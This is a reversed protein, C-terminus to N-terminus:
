VHARGIQREVLRPGGPGAAVEATSPQGMGFWNVPRRSYAQTVHLDEAPLTSTFGQSRAWDILESANLLPRYVYLPRPDDAAFSVTKGAQKLPQAVGKDGADNAPTALPADPKPMSGTPANPDDKRVYGEGYTDRFSDVTRVWGLKELKSDTEATKAIDEEEEVVRRVIPAAVDPGFNFDTWWRAVSSTFSDTLEDADAKVVEMKVDAHVEGQARSSGNDTTMTQSLCVKAIAADMYACLEKFDATGSRVAGILEVAMGEPVVFGSDTAIAQLAMLLKNIDEVSSGRPYTGKATPTGFKDLFINWFSLGNRKFLTPWYLWHALGRGYPEDDDSGGVAHVWFKREPLIEGQIKARTLMRLNGDDDFRFRRAHRVKIRDIDFLGDRPAWMVEGVGYGYFNAMLMKRTTRDWSIRKMTKDFAVAAKEARPDDDDGAITEWDRSVVAGIRQQMTSFVQDDRFVQDYAGWDISTSLLPDTAEILGRTYPRTIDRGDRTTAIESRLEASPKAVNQRMARYQEPQAM